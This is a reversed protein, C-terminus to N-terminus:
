EKVETGDKTFRRVEYAVTRSNLCHGCVYIIPQRVNGQEIVKGALRVTRNCLPHGSGGVVRLHWCASAPNLVLEFGSKPVVFPFSPETM